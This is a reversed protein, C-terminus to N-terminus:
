SACTTLKLHRTIAGTAADALVITDRHVGDQTVVLTDSVPVMMAEEADGLCWDGTEPVKGHSQRLDTKQVVADTRTDHFVVWQGHQEPFHAIADRVV